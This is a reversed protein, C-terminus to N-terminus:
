QERQKWLQKLALINKLMTLFAQHQKVKFAQYGKKSAIVREERRRKHRLRKRENLVQRKTTM